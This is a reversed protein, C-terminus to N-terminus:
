PVNKKIMIFQGIVYVVDIKALFVVGNEEM